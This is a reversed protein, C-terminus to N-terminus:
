RLVVLHQQVRHHLSCFTVASQKGTFDVLYLMGLHLQVALVAPTIVSTDNPFEAWCALQPLWGAAQLTFDQRTDSSLSIMEPSVKM